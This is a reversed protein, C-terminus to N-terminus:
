CLIYNIQSYLLDCFKSPGSFGCFTCLKQTQTKIVELFTTIKSCCHRYAVLTQHFMYWAPVSSVLLQEFAPCVTEEM